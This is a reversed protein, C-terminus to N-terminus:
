VAASFIGTVGPLIIIFAQHPVPTSLQSFAKSSLLIGRVASYSFIENVGNSSHPYFHCIRVALFSYAKPIVFFPLMELQRNEALFYVILWIMVPINLSKGMLKSHAFRIKLMQIHFDKAYANHIINNLAADLM